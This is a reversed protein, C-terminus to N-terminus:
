RRSAEVDADPNVRLPAIFCNRGVLLRARGNLGITRPAAWTAGWTAAQSRNDKRNRWLLGQLVAMYRSIGYYVKHSDDSWHLTELSSGPGPGFTPLAVRRVEAASFLHMTFDLSALSSFWLAAAGNRVGVSREASAM